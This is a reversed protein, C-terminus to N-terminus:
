QLMQNLILTIAEIDRESLHGIKGASGLYDAPIEAIRDCRAHWVDWRQPHLDFSPKSTMIM